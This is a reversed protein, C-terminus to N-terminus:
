SAKLRKEQSRDMLKSLLTSVAVAGLGTELDLGLPGDEEPAEPALRSRAEHAITASVQAASEASELAGKAVEQVDDVSRQLRDIADNVRGFDERFRASQEATCAVSLLSLAITLLFRIM